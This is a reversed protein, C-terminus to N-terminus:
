SVGFALSDIVTIVQQFAVAPAYGDTTSDRVIVAVTGEGPVDVLMVRVTQGRGVWVENPSGAPADISFLPLCAAQGHLCGDGFSAEASPAVDIVTAPRGGVVGSPWRELLVLDDRAALWDALARPDSGVPTSDGASSFARPHAVVTVGYVNNPEDLDLVSATDSGVNLVGAPSFTTPVSLAARYMGDRCTVAFLCDAAPSATPVVTPIGAPLAPHAAPRAAVAAVGVVAAVCLVAVTGHEVRRRRLRSALAGRSREVSVTRSVSTRLESSASRAREEVTM